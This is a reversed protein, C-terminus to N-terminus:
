GPLALVTMTYAIGNTLGPATTVTISQDGGRAVGTWSALGGIFVGTPKKNADLAEARFIIALPTFPTILVVQTGLAGSAGATIAVAEAPVGGLNERMTLSGVATHVQEFWPGMTGHYRRLPESEEFTARAPVPPQSLDSM